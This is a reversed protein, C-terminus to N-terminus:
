LSFLSKAESLLSDVSITTEKGDIMNKILVQNASYEKPAVIVSYKSASANEMQKKFQRGVLDIDVELGMQRLKSAISIAPKLM